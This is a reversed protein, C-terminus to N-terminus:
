LDHEALINRFGTEGTVSLLDCLELFKLALMGGEITGHTMVDMSLNWFARLAMLGVGTIHNGIIAIFAVLRVLRLIHGISGIDRRQVASCTVLLNEFGESGAGGLV